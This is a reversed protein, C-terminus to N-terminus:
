GRSGEPKDLSDMLALINRVIMTEGSFRNVVNLIVAQQELYMRIVDLKEKDTM